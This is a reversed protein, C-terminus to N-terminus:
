PEGERHFCPPTPLFCVRPLQLQLPICTWRRPIARFSCIMALMSRFVADETRPACEPCLLAPIGLPTWFVVTHDNETVEFRGLPM